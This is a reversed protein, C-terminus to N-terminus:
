KFTLKRKFNKFISKKIPLPKLRSRKKIKSLKDYYGVKYSAIVSVITGIALLPITLADM